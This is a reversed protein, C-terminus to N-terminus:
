MGTNSRYYVDAPMGIKLVGNPNEVAIKVAYVLDTRAERTQVNKPTFEARPSIWIVKGPLARDPLSDIKLNVDEGLKIRGLETEPVYVKMKMKALNAISVVAGGPRVIEGREVYKELITGATPALIRADKLQSQVLRIQADIQRKKVALSKLGTRANDYKTQAAQLATEIDDLQQRTASSEEYLAKIRKFKKQVNDLNTKALAVSRKAKILNLKLEDMAALLQQKQITVKETDVVAILRGQEVMDGQEVYLAIIEGPVKSSVTIETAEITGSGILMRDEDKSCSSLSIVMVVFVATLLVKKDPM